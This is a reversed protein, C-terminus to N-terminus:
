AIKQGGRWVDKIVPVVGTRTVRILDARKGAAIEGRDELGIARAPNLTVTAIAQPLTLAEIQTELLLAGFLLSSPVYDSSVIDLQGRLALDKAAVRVANALSFAAM